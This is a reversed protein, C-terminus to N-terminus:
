DPFWDKPRIVRVGLKAARRALQHLARDHSLLWRCGSAVALDIFVQDDADRCRLTPLTAPQAQMLAYRDFQQLAAARDPSWRALNDYGLTRDFEDRMSPCALWHLQGSEVATVVAATAPERFVLWDLLVNTDLVVRPPSQAAAHM